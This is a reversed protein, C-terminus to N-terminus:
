SDVPKNETENVWNLEWKQIKCVGKDLAPGPLGLPYPAKSLPGVTVDNKVGNLRM